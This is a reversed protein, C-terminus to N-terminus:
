TEETDNIGGINFFYKIFENKSNLLNEWTGTEVIEGQHIVAIKDALNRAISLDHTVIVETTNFQRHIKKMLKIISASTIVDLGTTPEDYFLLEPKSILARAIGVRKKMGGSLEEPMKDSIDSLGVASLVEEAQRRIEQESLRSHELLFFGVNEWIRMSDFLASSQFVMGTKKRLNFLQEDNIGFMDNGLVVLKGSYPSILGLLTKLFVSKGSGSPGLIVVVEGKEVNMTIGKLIEQEKLVVRLNEIEIVM